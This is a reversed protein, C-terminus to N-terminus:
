ERLKQLVEIRKDLDDRWALSMAAWDNATPAHSEPLGKLAGRVAELPFGLAQAARVVSVVRITARAFRRHNTTTRSASILGLSEYYRLASAAVGTRKALEAITIWTGPEQNM